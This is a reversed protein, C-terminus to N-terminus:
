KKPTGHIYHDHNEAFDAPLGKAIGDAAKLRDYLTKVSAPSQAEPTAVLEIKVEAGEPLSAEDDVVIRGAEVHGRLITSMRM